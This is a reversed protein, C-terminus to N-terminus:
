LMPVILPWLYQQLLGLMLGGAILLPPPIKSLLLLFFTIFVLIINLLDSPIPEYLLVAAAIVMGTSAANIGELSAKVPRYRKLQEWFRVVFFILFTGPLNIGATAVMSGLVIGWFGEQRMALGGVYGAFSFVPGPIAQAIAYGSIFEASSLYKKFVVFETFLVPVLVQGGGFVLSGNRYFNELLRLPLSRTIGGLTAILVFISVYLIFYQWDPKLKQKEEQLHQKYNVSTILGAALLLFPLLWPTRVLFAVVASALMIIVGTRTNVLRTGLRYAAYAVFGVAMPQVFRTFRLADAFDREHSLMAVLAALLTVICFAPLAWVLLTLMALRIGGRKYGIATITQTSSPGPLVQCLANLEVLEQESLYRRKEVLIDYFMALHAQPGGFASVAILLVDKLFIFDRKTM